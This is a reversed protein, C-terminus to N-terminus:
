ADSHSWEASRRRGCRERRGDCDCDDPEEREVGRRVSARHVAGDHGRLVGLMPASKEKPLLGLGAGFILSFFILGLMEGRAMADLPNRPVINVLMETGFGAGGGLEMTGSAATGYSSVLRDRDEASLGDGPRVWTM